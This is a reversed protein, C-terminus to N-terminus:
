YIFYPLLINRFWIWTCCHCIFALLTLRNYITQSLGKSLYGFIDSVDHVLAFIAGCEWMNFLYSALLLFVTALSHLGMEVFDNQHTGMYHLICRSIHYSIFCLYYDKLNDTHNAYPYNKFCNM